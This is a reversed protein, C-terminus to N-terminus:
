THPYLIEDPDPYKWPRFKLRFNHLACAIEMVMDRFGNTWARVKEKVIRLRKIGSMVHEVKVRVRSIRTNDQKQEDTLEKGKPKKMPMIIQLDEGKPSYGIFGTDQFCRSRDPLAINEEQNIKKDHVKGERSASLFNIQSNSDSLITNKTTHTKKKGSYEEQQTEWDTSRPIPREVGDTYFDLGEGSKLRNQLAGNTRAPLCYLGELTRHLIRKYRHICVNAQPQTMGFIAAISEQIPNNKLYFLIFLLKDEVLPLLANNKESYNRNRLKGEFTFYRMQYDWAVSFHVVLKDFEELSLSTLALFQCPNLKIESYKLM